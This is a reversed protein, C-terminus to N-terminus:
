KKILRKVTTADASSINVMYVGSALGSVDLRQEGVMQSLDFKSVLKGNIDYITAETLGIQSNNKINVYSAAPNPYMVVANALANDDVGLITEVTLEFSCEGINGYEDEATLTVTYTGDLLLTGPAPDQSLITVPDTCNDTATALGEGFYDPLTYTISDPDTDVTQDAPCEIVPALMDVVTVVATGAAINGSSDSVFLTVTVPTGIDACTFCSIDIASVTIGCNDFTSASGPSVEVFTASGDSNTLVETWNSPDFQGFFGPMFNSVTITAPGFLGDESRARFGFEQGAVLPVSASGAQNTAGGNDTLQTFVGDVLYGFQDFLAGDITTYSWDFSVTVDETVNVLLDTFGESGSGNDSSITIVEFTPPLIGFLDEPEICVTGDPGLEVTIDETAVIPALNDVIEIQAICTTSNGSSDTATVEVNVIGLDACTFTLDGTSGGGTTYIINGNFVRPQFLSGTFFGGVATGELMEINDDSAWVNGVGTGNTYSFGGNLVQASVYFSGSEGANITVGMDLDLPTPNGSGNPVTGPAEGVLTWAAQNTEFGVHTGTKFYVVVDVPAGAQM